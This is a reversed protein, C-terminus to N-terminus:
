HATLWSPQKAIFADRTAESHFLYIRESGTNEDYVYAEFQPELSQAYWHLARAAHVESTFLQGSFQETEDVYNFVGPEIEYVYRTKTRRPYENQTTNM